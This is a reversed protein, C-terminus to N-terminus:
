TSIKGFVPSKTWALKRNSSCTVEVSGQQLYFYTSNYFVNGTEGFAIEDPYSLIFAQKIASNDNCRMKVCVLALTGWTGDDQCTRTYQGDQIEFGEICQITVSSNYTYVTGQTSLSGNIVLPKNCKVIDCVPETDSWTNSENCVRRTVNNTMRYGTNCKPELVSGYSYTNQSVNYKGNEFSTPSTCVIPNCLPEIGSWKNLGSCYRPVGRHLYFGKNCLPTVKQNYDFPPSSGRVDYIGNVFFPLSSCTIDICTSMQGTWQGNSDCTLPTGPSPVKESLSCKPVIVALYPVSIFSLVPIENLM